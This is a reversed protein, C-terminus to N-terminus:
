RKKAADIQALERQTGNGPVRQEDAPRSSGEIIHRIVVNIEGEGDTGTHTQPAKGWGRDLLIGAAAVRASESDGNQAIGALVKICLETHGRAM